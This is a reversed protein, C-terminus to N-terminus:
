WDLYGYLQDDRITEATSKYLWHDNSAILKDAVENRVSDWVAEIQKQLADLETQKSTAVEKWIELAKENAQANKEFFDDDNDPYQNHERWCLNAQKQFAEPWGDAQREEQRWVEHLERRHQERAEEDRRDRERHAERERELEDELYREHDTRNDKQYLPFM